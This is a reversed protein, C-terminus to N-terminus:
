KTHQHEEIRKKIYKRAKLLQTKSTNVSIDLIEAIESHTYGEIAFLNFVMRYGGPLNRIIELLRDRNLGTKGEITVEEEEENLNEIEEPNETEKKNDLRLRSHYHNIATNIIIKKIWGEFSGEMRYQGLRTFVKIFGDQLVDEAEERSKCYRMCIGMMVESYKKYLLSHSRRKGDLCGKILKEDSIM